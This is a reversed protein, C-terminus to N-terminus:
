RGTTACRSTPCRTSPAGGSSCPACGGTRRPTSATRVAPPPSPSWSRWWCCRRVSCSWRSRRGPRRRAPRRVHGPRHDRVPRPVRARLPGPHQDGPGPRGRRHGAVALGLVTAVLPGVVLVAVTRSLSRPDPKATFNRRAALLLVVLALSLAAEEVDLGKLLHLLAAVAALVTALLWARAKGRRLARSLVVLVLGVAAAGTTAAAPFADPVLEYIIRTRDRFGPLVASVVTVAGVLGVIRAVWFPTRLTAWLRRWM